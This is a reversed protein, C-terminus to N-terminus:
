FQLTKLLSLDLPVLTLFHDPNSASSLIRSTVSGPTINPDLNMHCEFLHECLPSDHPVIYIHATLCQANEIVASSVTLSLAKLLAMSLKSGDRGYELAVDWFKPWLNEKAVHLIYLLSPHVKSEEILIRDAHIIQKKGFGM